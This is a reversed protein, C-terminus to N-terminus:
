YGVLVMRGLFRPLLLDLHLVRMQKELEQRSAARIGALIFPLSINKLISVNHESECSSIMASMIPFESIDERCTKGKRTVTKGFSEVESYVM